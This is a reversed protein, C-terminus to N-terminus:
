GPSRRAKDNYGSAHVPRYLQMEVAVGGEEKGAPGCKNETRWGQQCCAASPALIQPPGEMEGM